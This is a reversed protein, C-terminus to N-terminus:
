KKGKIAASIQNAANLQAQLTQRHLDLQVQAIQLQTARDFQTLFVWPGPDGHRFPNFQLFQALDQPRPKKPAM